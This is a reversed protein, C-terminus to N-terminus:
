RASTAHRTHAAKARKRTAGLRGDTVTCKKGCSCVAAVKRAYSSSPYNEVEYGTIKHMM